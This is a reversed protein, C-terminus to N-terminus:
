KLLYQSTAFTSCGGAVDACLGYVLVQTNGNADTQPTNVFVKGHSIVPPTFRQLPFFTKGAQYSSWLPALVPKGTEPNWLRCASLTGETYSSTGTIAWLIADGSNLSSVALIGGNSPLVGPTYAAAPTPDFQEPYTTNFGYARLIDNFGWTYLYGSSGRSWYASSRYEDCGTPNSASYLPPEDYVPLDNPCESNVGTAQFTQYPNGTQGALGTTTLVALTGTKGGAVLYSSAAAPPTPPIMLIGGADFDLDNYDLQLITPSTPLYSDLNVLNVVGESYEDPGCLAPNGGYLCGNGVSVFVNGAGDSAPGRGSLWIGGGHSNPTTNFISIQQLGCTAGSFCPPDTACTTSGTLCSKYGFAWGHYPNTEYGAGASGFGFTMYISGNVDLLASREKAHSPIFPVVGNVSDDGVGPVSGSIVVGGPATQDVPFYELGTTISIAHLRFAWGSAGVGEQALSVFYLLHHKVDIVPTDMIGMTTFGTYPEYPVPAGFQASKWIYPAAQTPPADGNFAYIYNDMTAIFVVTCYDTGSITLNHVVLPQASVTAADVSLSFLYGFDSANVNAPTLYAEAENAGTRYSNNQGTIVDSANTATCQASLSSMGYAALAMLFVIRFYCSMGSM